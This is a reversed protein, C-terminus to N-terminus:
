GEVVEFEVTVKIERHIQVDANYKGVNKIPEDKIVINKREVTFGAEKIADALQVTNVSGFIKGGEGVKAPIKLTIGKLKEAFQKSEELVKNEKHQRQKVNEAHVKKASVTAAVAIGQPILFNRAYGPKVTVIDDSYGLKEVDQKLIVEM